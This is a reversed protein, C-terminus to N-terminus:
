KRVAPRAVIPVRAEPAPWTRFHAYRPDDSAAM